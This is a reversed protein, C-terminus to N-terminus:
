LLTWGAMRRISRSRRIPVGSQLWEPGGSGDRAYGSFSHLFSGGAGSGYFGFSFDQRFFFFHRGAALAGQCADAIHCACAGLRRWSGILSVLKVGPFQGKKRRSQCDIGWPRLPIFAANWGRRPKDRLCSSRGPPRRSRLDGHWAVSVSVEPTGSRSAMAAANLRNVMPAGSAPSISVSRRRIAISPLVSRPLLSAPATCPRISRRPM